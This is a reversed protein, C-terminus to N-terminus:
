HSFQQIWVVGSSGFRLVASHAARQLANLARFRSLHFPDILTLVGDRPMGEGLACASAGEAMGIEVIRRRGADWRLLAAHEARSHQAFIPRLGLWSFVPHRMKRTLFSASAADHPTEFPRFLINSNPM